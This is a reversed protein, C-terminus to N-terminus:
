RGYWSEIVKLGEAKPTFSLPSSRRERGTQTAYNEPTWKWLFVGALWEEKWFSEFMAQYCKAQTETSIETEAVEGRKEWEWPKIAADKSSRYGIETFVIPKQWKTHLQKLSRYHPTWGKKLEKLSPNEKNTLPFYAQLGIFDLADWFKIEEYEKYFNAAYTLKGSYVKRINAIIQRWENEHQSSAIYLETGICLGEFGHTEALRAHHLIFAEYQDFWQQWEQPSNMEIDSRWKGNARTLWIHPKLLTKIGKERALKATHALGADREGWMGRNSHFAIEPSDHGAQWGFPTQSIWNVHHKSLSQIHDAQTTDRTAEWCVGKIKELSSLEDTKAPSELAKYIGTGGLLLVLSLVILNKM